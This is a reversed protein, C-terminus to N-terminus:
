STATVHDFKYLPELRANKQFLVYRKIWWPLVQRLQYRMHTRTPVAFIYDLEELTRQKTEPVWFFIMVLAIVNLGAYFGFAGTPTMAHLMRPFTIGLVAAWGLCTAVAWAM